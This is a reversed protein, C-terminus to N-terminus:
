RLLSGIDPKALISYRIVPLIRSSLHTYQVTKRKPLSNIRVVPVQTTSINKKVIKMEKILMEDDPTLKRTKGSDINKQKCRERALIELFNSDGEDELSSDLSSDLSDDSSSPPRPLETRKKLFERHIYETRARAGIRGVTTKSKKLSKEESIKSLQLVRDSNDSDSFSPSRIVITKLKLVNQGARQPFRPIKIDRLWLSGYEDRIFEFNISQLSQKEHNEIIPMITTAIDRAASIIISDSCTTELGNISISLRSTYKFNDLQLHLTHVTDDDSFGPKLKQVFHIEFTERKKGELLSKVHSQTLLKRERQTKLYCVYKNTSKLRSLHKYDKILSILLTNFGGFRNSQCELVGQSNNAYLKKCTDGSFVYTDLIPVRVKIESLYGLILVYDKSEMKLYLSM